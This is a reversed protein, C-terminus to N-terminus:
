TLRNVKSRTSPTSVQMDATISCMNSILRTSVYVLSYKGISPPSEYSTAKVSIAYNRLPNYQWLSTPQQTPELARVLCMTKCGPNRNHETPPRCVQICMDCNRNWEMWDKLTKPLKVPDYRPKDNNTNNDNDKDSMNAPFPIPCSCGAPGSIALACRCCSM